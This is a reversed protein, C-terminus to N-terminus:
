ASLAVSNNIADFADKALGQLTKGGGYWVGAVFQTAAFTLMDSVKMSAQNNFAPRWDEAGSCSATLTSTNDIMKCGHQLDILENGNTISFFVNLATALMQARLMAAMTANGANAAKIVDYVFGAVGTSPANKTLSGSGGCLSGYPSATISGVGAITATFPAFGSLYNYLGTCVKPTGSGSGIIQGQGNKNQWYGMTLGRVTPCVTVSASNDGPTTDTIGTIAVTNTYARCGNPDISLTRSYTFTFTHTSSNYGPTVGAALNSWAGNVNVDAIKTAAGGNFADTVTATNNVLSPNGTSSDDFQASTSGDASSDPSKFDGTNDWTARANNTYAVYAGNNDKMPSTGSLWTCSYQLNVSSNAGVTLGTGSTVTCIANADATGGDALSGGTSLTDTVDVSPADIGSLNTVTVEGDIKWGSDTPGSWAASVSYSATTTTQSTRVTGSSTLLKASDWGYTRTFTPTATKSVILDDVEPVNEANIRFADFKCESPNPKIESVISTPCIAMIYVGGNNSTDDYPMLQTVANGQPDTGSAHPGTTCGADPTYSMDGNSDVTLERCLYNDGSANDGTTGGSTTDSLNGKHGDIFGDHQYGPVLVSFYYVGADLGNGNTPGGNVYVKDKGTYNNCNIGNPSDLCGGETKDAGSYTTYAAAGSGFAGPVLVMATALLSAFITLGAPRRLSLRRKKKM